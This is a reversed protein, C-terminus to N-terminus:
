RAARRAMTVTTQRTLDVQQLHGLARRLETDFAQRIQEPSSLYIARTREVDFVVEAAEALRRTDAHCVAPEFLGTGAIVESDGAAHVWAGGTDDRRVVNLQAQEALRGM